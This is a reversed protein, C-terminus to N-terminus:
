RVARKAAFVVSWAKSEAKRLQALKRNARSWAPSPETFDLYGDETPRGVGQPAGGTQALVRQQVLRAATALEAASTPDTTTKNSM